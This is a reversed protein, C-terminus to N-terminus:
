APNTPLERGEEQEQLQALPEYLQIVYLNQSLRLLPSFPLSSDGTRQGGRKEQLQATLEHLHGGYLNGIKWFGFHSGPHIDLIM